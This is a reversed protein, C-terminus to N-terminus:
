KCAVDKTYNLFIEEFKGLTSMLNTIKVRKQEFSEINQKILTRFQKLVPLRVKLSEEFNSIKCILEKNIEKGSLDLFIDKFRNLINRNSPNIYKKLAANVDVKSRTFTKYIDSSVLHSVSSLKTTFEDIQIKRLEISETKEDKGEEIGLRKDPIKPIYCGPFNQILIKRLLLFDNFKRDIKEGQGNIITYTVYSGFVGKHKLEAKDLSTSEDFYANNVENDVNTDSNLSQRM